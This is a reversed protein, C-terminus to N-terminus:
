NLDGIKQVMADRTMTQRTNYDEVKPADPNKRNGYSALYPTISSYIGSKNTINKGEFNVITKASKSISMDHDELGIEFPDNLKNRKAFIEPINGGKTNQNIIEYQAQM